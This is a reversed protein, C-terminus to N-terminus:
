DVAPLPVAVSIGRRSHVLLMPSGSAVWRCARLHSQGSGGASKDHLGSPRIPEIGAGVEDPLRM